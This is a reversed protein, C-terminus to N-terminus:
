GTSLDFGLAGLGRSQVGDPADHLTFAHRAQVRTEVACEESDTHGVENIVITLDTELGKMQPDM